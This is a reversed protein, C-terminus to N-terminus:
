MYMYMYVYIYSCTYQIPAHTYIHKNTRTYVNVDEEEGWWVAGRKRALGSGRQQCIYIYVHIYMYVYLHM